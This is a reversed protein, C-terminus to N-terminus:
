PFVVGESELKNPNHPNHGHSKGGTGKSNQLFQLASEMIKPYNDKDLLDLDDLQDKLGSYRKGDVIQLSLPAKYEKCQTDRAKCKIVNLMNDYGTDGPALMMKAKM